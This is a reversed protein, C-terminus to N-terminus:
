NNFRAPLDCAWDVIECDLAVPDSKTAARNQITAHVLCSGGSWSRQEPLKSAVLVYSRIASDGYVRPRAHLNFGTPVGSGSVTPEYQYVFNDTLARSSLPSNGIYRRICLDLIDKEARINATREANALNIVCDRLGPFLSPFLQDSRLQNIMKAVNHDPSMAFIIGSRDTYIPDRGSLWGGLRPPRASVLYDGVTADKNPRPSYGVTFEAHHGIALEHGICKSGEPGLQVLTKPFGDLPHASAFDLACKDIRFLGREIPEYDLREVARADFALFYFISGVIMALAFAKMSLVRWSSPSLLSAGALIATVWNLYPIWFILFGVYGTNAVTQYGAPILLWLWALGIGISRTGLCQATPSTCYRWCVSCPSNRSFGM